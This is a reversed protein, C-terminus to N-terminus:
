GSSLGTIRANQPDQDPRYTYDTMNGTAVAVMSRGEGAPKRRGPSRSGSAPSISGATRRPLQHVEADGSEEGTPTPSTRPRRRISRSPSTSRICRPSSTQPSFLDFTDWRNEALMAFYAEWYRQLIGNRRTDKNQLLGDHKSRARPSEVAERIAEFEATGRSAARDPPRGRPAYMLGREDAGAIVLLDKGQEKIRKVALSEKKDSLPLKGQGALSRVLPSNTKTGVLLIGSSAAEGLSSKRAPSIGRAQLARNIKELGFASPAGLPGDSVITL